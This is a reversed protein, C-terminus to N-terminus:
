FEVSAAPIVVDLKAVDLCSDAGIVVAKPGVEVGYLWVAGWWGPQCSFRTRTGFYGYTRQFKGKTQIGHHYEGAQLVIRRPEGAPPQLSSQVAKHLTALPGDSGDDAPTRTTCTM